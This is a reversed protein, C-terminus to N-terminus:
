NFRKALAALYGDMTATHGFVYRSMFRFLVNSVEGNETITVRTASGEKTLVITWSGSYGLNEDVIRTVLRQGPVDEALEYTVDGQKGHERYNLKGNPSGLLEVSKLDTRWAPTNGVDRIVQYVEDSSKHLLISRSAVHASPLRSGIIAVVGLLLGLLGVGTLVVILITRM